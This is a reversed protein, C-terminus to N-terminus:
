KRKYKDIFTHPVLYVNRRARTCAVYFKNLTSAALKNLVNKRYAKLTTANLIICVDTFNDLGKAKGWNESYCVYKSSDQYFLKITTNDNYLVDAERQNDVYVISTEDERHSRIEISLSNRVFDCVTRSCRYSNSLTTEDITLGIRSWERKYKGYDRYLSKRMNGDLSTDYTHQFFDGVFLCDIKTPVIAQMLNFDYGGLDQVEDILFCDYYKEIRGKIQPACEKLCLKALRNHYLNRHPSLYHETGTKLRTWDEPLDWTIGKGNFEDKLFPRYCVRFLFQFYSLLNVNDPMFGFRDIIRRRIHSLNNETYTVILYRKSLDICNILYTTKGSGAVALILRRDM